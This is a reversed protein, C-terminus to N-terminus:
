HFTERPDNAVEKKQGAAVGALVGYTAFAEVERVDDDAGHEHKSRQRCLPIDSQILLVIVIEEHDTIFSEHLAKENVEYFISKSMCRGVATDAKEARPM